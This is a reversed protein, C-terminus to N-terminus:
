SDNGLQRAHHLLVQLRSFVLLNIFLCNVSHTIPLGAPSTWREPQHPLPGEGYRHGHQHGFEFVLCESRRPGARKSMRRGEESSGSPLLNVRDLYAAGLKVALQDLV